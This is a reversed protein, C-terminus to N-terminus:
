GWGGRGTHGRPYGQHQGGNQDRRDAVGCGGERHNSAAAIGGGSPQPHNRLLDHGLGDHSSPLAELTDSRFITIPVDSYRKPIQQQMSDDIEKPSDCSMEVKEWVDKGVFINYREQTM